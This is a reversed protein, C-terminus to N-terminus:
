IFTCRAGIRSRACILMFQKTERGIINQYVITNPNYIGATCLWCYLMQELM